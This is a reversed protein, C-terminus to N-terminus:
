RRLHNFAIYTKACTISGVWDAGTSLKTSVAFYSIKRDFVRELLNRGYIFTAYWYVFFEFRSYISPFLLFIFICSAVHTSQLGDRFLSYPQAIIFYHLARAIIVFLVIIHFPFLLWVVVCCCIGRRYGAWGKGIRETSHRTM